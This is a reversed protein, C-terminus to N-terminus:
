RRACAVSMCYEINGANVVAKLFQSWMEPLLSPINHFNVRAARNGDGQLTLLHRPHSATGARCLRAFRAELPHERLPEPNWQVELGAMM